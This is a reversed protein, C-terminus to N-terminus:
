VSMLRYKDSQTYCFFKLGINGQVSGKIWRYIRCIKEDRFSSQLMQRTRYLRILEPGQTTRLCIDPHEEESIFLIEM